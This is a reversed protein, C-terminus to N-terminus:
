TEKRREINPKEQYHDKHPCIGRNIYRGCNCQFCLVQLDEPYGHDRVWYYFENGKIDKRAKNGGGNKHDLTLFRLDSEGCCSCKGGYHDIVAQKMRLKIRRHTDNYRAMLDPDSQRRIRSRDIYCKRCTNVYLRRGDVVSIRFMFGTDADKSEGCVNCTKKTM